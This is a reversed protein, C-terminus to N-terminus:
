VNSPTPHGYSSGGLSFFFDSDANLTPHLSLFTRLIPTFSGTRSKPLAHEKAIDERLVTRGQDTVCLAYHDCTQHPLAHNLDNSSLSIYEPWKGGGLKQISFCTLIQILVKFFHLSFFFFLFSHYFM